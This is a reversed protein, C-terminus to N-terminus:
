VSQCVEAITFITAVLQAAHQLGVMPVAAGIVATMNSIIIGSNLGVARKNVFKEKKRKTDVKSKNIKIAPKKTNGVQSTPSM